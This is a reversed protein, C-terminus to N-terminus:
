VPVDKPKRPARSAIRDYLDIITRIEELPFGYQQSTIALILEPTIIRPRNDRLSDALVREALDVTVTNAARNVAKVQVRAERTGEGISLRHGIEIGAVSALELVVNTGAVEDNLTLTSAIVQPEVLLDKDITAADSLHGPDVVDRLILSKLTALGNALVSDAGNLRVQEGDVVGADELLAKDLANSNLVRQVTRSTRDSSLDAATVLGDAVLRQLSALGSDLLAHLQVNGAVVLNRAALDAADVTGGATLAAQAISKDQFDQKRLLRDEVLQELERRETAYSALNGRTPSAIQVFTVRDHWEQHEALLLEFARIREVLGKTYDLRDVGLVVKRGRAIRALGGSGERGPRAAAEELEGPEIGM